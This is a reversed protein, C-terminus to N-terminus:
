PCYNRWRCTCINPFRLKRYITPRTCGAHSDALLKGIDHQIKKPGGRRTAEHVSGAKTEVLLVSTDFVVLGDLEAEKILGDEEVEYKVNPYVKARPLVQQFLSLTKRETYTACIRGYKEWLNRDHNVAHPNDPNLLQELRPQIASLLDPVPALYRGDHHIFPRVMLDHSARPMNFDAEVEGFAISFTRLIAGVRETPIGTAASLEGETYSFTTGLSLFLM